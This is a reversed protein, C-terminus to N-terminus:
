DCDPSSFLRAARLRAKLGPDSPRRWSLPPMPVAARMPVAFAVPESGAVSAHAPHAALCPCDHGGQQNSSGDPALPSAEGIVCLEPAMAHVPNSLLAGAMLAQALLAYALAVGFFGQRLLARVWIM